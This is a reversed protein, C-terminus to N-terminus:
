KCGATHGNEQIVGVMQVKFHFVQVMTNASEVHLVHQSTNGIEINRQQFNHRAHM